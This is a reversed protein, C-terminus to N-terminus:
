NPLNDLLRNVFLHDRLVDGVNHWLFAGAALFLATISQEFDPHLTIWEPAESFINLNGEQVTLWAAIFVGAIIVVSRVPKLDNGDSLVALIRKLAVEKVREFSVSVGASWAVWVLLVSIVWELADVGEDIVVPQPAAEEQASVVPILGVTFVVLIMVFLTRM